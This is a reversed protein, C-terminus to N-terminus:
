KKKLARLVDLDRELEEVTRGDLEANLKAILEQRRTIPQGEGLATTNTEGHLQAMAEEHARVKEPDAPILEVSPAHTRGLIYDTTVGFYEALKEIKDISPKKNNNLNYFFDKGVGAAKMSVTPAEGKQNALSSVREIVIEYM